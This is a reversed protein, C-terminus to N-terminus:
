GEHFPCTPRRVLTTRCSPCVLYREGDQCIFSVKAPENGCSACAPAEVPRVPAESPVSATKSAVNRPKSPLGGVLYDWDADSVAAQFPSNDLITITKDLAENLLDPDPDQDEIVHESIDDFDDQEALWDDYGEDAAPDYHAPLPAPGYLDGENVITDETVIVPAEDDETTDSHGWGCNDCVSNGTSTSIGLVRGCQPCEDDDIYVDADDLEDLLLVGGTELAEILPNTEAESPAPALPVGTTLSQTLKADLDLTGRLIQAAEDATPYWWGNNAACDPGYGVALSRDDSLHGPRGISM